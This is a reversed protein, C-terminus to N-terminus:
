TPEVVPVDTPTPEVVPVDGNLDFQVELSKISFGNWVWSAVCSPRPGITWEFTNTGVILQAPDLPLRFSKWGSASCNNYTYEYPDVAVNPGGNISLLVQGTMPNHVQGFLVPNPGVKPLDITITDSLGIPKDGNGQMYVVDNAAAEYNEYRGVVPGDFRINDWHFTYTSTNGDKKPTYAHTKFLVLGQDFPLGGPVTVKYESFSGDAKEIAWILQDNNFTMRMTRRIRRDSSAPDGPFMQEWTGWDAVDILKGQPDVAGTGVQIKRKNEGFEFVIRDAPYTEDIPLWERASGVKLETRPVILVEWWSRPHGGNINVDFELVGGDAFNFEQKPWFSTVSYGSVDGMTSMMHNKCIFFSQDPNAGNSFHSTTVNHQPLPSIAPNPGACDDAHDALYPSFGSFHETPHTRHTVVYDFNRPLLAQSPAGPDGDFSEELAWVPEQAVTKPTTAAMAPTAQWSFTAVVLSLLFTIRVMQILM